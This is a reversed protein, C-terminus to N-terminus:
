DAPHCPLMSPSTLIYHQSALTKLIGVKARHNIAQLIYSKEPTIVEFTYRHIVCVCVMYLYYRHHYTVEHAWTYIVSRVNGDLVDCNNTVWVVKMDYEGNVSSQIITVHVCTNNNAATCANFNTLM